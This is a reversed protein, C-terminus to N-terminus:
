PLQSVLVKIKCITKGPKSWDVPSHKDDVMRKLDLIKCLDRLEKVYLQNLDEPIDHTTRNAKKRQNQSRTQKPMAAFNEQHFFM